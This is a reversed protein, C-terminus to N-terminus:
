EASWRFCCGSPLADSSNTVPLKMEFAQMSSALPSRGHSLVAQRFVSELDRAAIGPTHCSILVLSPTESLLQGVEEAFVELDRELKWTEGSPGRGFSPPDAVVVDYRNGRKIERQVFRRADEVIWRIPADSLGSRAANSRAWKVVSGAADVHAVKAGRTALAMTTGGTYGFLNIAKKGTFDIKHNLIWDWNIAQEPFVGVQGTPTLRLEFKMPSEGFKLTWDQPVQGSWHRTKGLWECTADVNPWHSRDLRRGPASPTDRCINVSAFSELKQEDGFDILQYQNESFM